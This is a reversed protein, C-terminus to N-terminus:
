TLLAQTCLITSPLLRLMCLLLLLLVELVVRMLLQLISNNHVILITQPPAHLHVQSMSLAAHNGRSYLMGRRM